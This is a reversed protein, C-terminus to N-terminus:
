RVDERALFCNLFLGLKLPLSCILLGSELIYHRLLFVLESHKAVFTENNLVSNMTQTIGLVLQPSPHTAM